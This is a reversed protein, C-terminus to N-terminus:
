GGGWGYRSTLFEMRLSISAVFCCDWDKETGRVASPIATVTALVDTVLICSKCLFILSLHTCLLRPLPSPSQGVTFLNVVRVARLGMEGWGGGWGVHGKCGM